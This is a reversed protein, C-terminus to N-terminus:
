QFLIVGPKVKDPDELGNEALFDGVPIGRLEAGKRAWKWAEKPNRKLEIEPFGYTYYHVLHVAARERRGGMVAARKMWEFGKAKEAPTDMEILALALELPAEEHGKLAAKELWPLCEQINAIGEKAYTDAYAGIRYMSEVDGAKAWVQLGEFAHKIEGQYTRFHNDRVEKSLKQDNAKSGEILALELIAPGYEKEAAKKFWEFRVADPQRRKAFQYMAVPDGREASAQLKVRRGEESDVSGKSIQTPAPSQSEAMVFLATGTAFCIPILFTRPLM